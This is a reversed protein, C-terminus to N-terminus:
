DRAIGLYILCDGQKRDTLREEETL